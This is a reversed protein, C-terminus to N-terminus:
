TQINRSYIFGYIFLIGDGQFLPKTFTVVTLWGTLLSGWKYSVFCGRGKLYMKINNQWKRGPRRLSSSKGEPKFATSM